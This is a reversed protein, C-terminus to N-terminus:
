NIISSISKHVQDQCLKATIEIFRSAGTVHLHSIDIDIHSRFIGIKFGDWYFGEDEVIILRSAVEIYISWPLETFSRNFNGAARMGSTGDDWCM